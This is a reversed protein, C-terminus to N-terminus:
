SWIKRVPQSTM